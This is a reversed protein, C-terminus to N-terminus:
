RKRWRLTINGYKNLGNLKRVTTRESGNRYEIPPTELPLVDSFNDRVRPTTDLRYRYHTKQTSEAQPREQSWASHPVVLNTAVLFLFAFVTQTFVNRSM